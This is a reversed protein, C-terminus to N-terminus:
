KPLYATTYLKSMDPAHKVLKLEVFSRKLAALSAADFSCDRTYMGKVIDYDKSMVSPPFKTVAAELKVTEAKHTQMYRVTEVWGAVFARVARPDAKMVHNSAFLVGAAIHGMYASVPALVRGVKSEAERLFSATGGVDADILHDRFAATSATTGGGIAVRKIENPGWGENRALEKALWDTLSGYSSIGIRKGKLGKLSTVPSDFPVGIAFSALTSSSECIAKMPAGRTIFAMLAGAGVGIDINGAVMAQIMKSGGRFNVIKLDLGRKKFFGLRDGVDVVIINDAVPNAKGVVLSTSARAAPSPLAAALAAVAACCLLGKKM